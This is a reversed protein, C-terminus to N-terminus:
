THILLNGYDIGKDMEEAKLIQSVQQHATPYAEKLTSVEIIFERSSSKQFVCESICDIALLSEYDELSVQVTFAVLTSSEVEAKREREIKFQKVIEDVLKEPPLLNFNFINEFSRIANITTVLLETSISSENKIQWNSEGIPSENFKALQHDGPHLSIMQTDYCYHVKISDNLNAVYSVTRTM